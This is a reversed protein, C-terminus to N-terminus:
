LINWGDNVFVCLCAGTCDAAQYSMISTHKTTITRNADGPLAEVGVRERSVEKKENSDM